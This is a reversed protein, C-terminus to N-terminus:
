PGTGHGESEANDLSLKTAPSDGENHGPCVNDTVTAVPGVMLDSQLHRKLYPPSLSAPRADFSIPDGQLSPLEYLFCHEAVIFVHDGVKRVVDVSKKHKHTSCHDRGQTQVGSM